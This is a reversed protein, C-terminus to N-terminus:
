DFRSFFNVIFYLLLCGAGGFIVSLVIRLFVAGQTGWYDDLNFGYYQIIGVAYQYGLFAGACFGIVTAAKKVM